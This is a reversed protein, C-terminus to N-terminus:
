ITESQMRGGRYVVREDVEATLQKCWRLFTAKKIPNNYYKVNWFVTISSAAIIAALKHYRPRKACAEKVIGQWDIDGDCILRPQSENFCKGGSPCLRELRKRERDRVTRFRLLYVKRIPRRWRAQASASCNNQHSICKVRHCHTLLDSLQQASFLLLCISALAGVV